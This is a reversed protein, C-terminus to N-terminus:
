KNLSTMSKSWSRVFWVWSNLPVKTYFLVLGCWVTANKLEWYLLDLWPIKGLWEAVLQIFYCGPCIKYSTQNWPIRNEKQMRRKLRAHRTIWLPQEEGFEETVDRWCAFGFFRCDRVKSQLLHLVDLHPKRKSREELDTEIATKTKLLIYNMITYVKKQARTTCISIRSIRKTKWLRPGWRETSTMTEEMKRRARDIANVMQAWTLCRKM